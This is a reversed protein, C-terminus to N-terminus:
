RPDPSSTGGDRGSAKAPANGLVRIWRARERPTDFKTRWHHKFANSKKAMREKLFQQSEASTGNLWALTTACDNIEGLADQVPKLRELQEGLAPGYLDSFLELTYRFHKTRLRFRHLSEPTGDEAFLQEGAEFYDLAMAPLRVRANEGVPVKKKWAAKVM